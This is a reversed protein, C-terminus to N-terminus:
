PLPPRNVIHELAYPCKEPPLDEISLAAFTYTQIEYNSDNVAETRKEFPCCCLNKDWHKLFDYRTSGDNSSKARELFCKLCIEKKLM